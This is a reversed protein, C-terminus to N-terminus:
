AGREVAGEFSGTVDWDLVDIGNGRLERLRLRRTVRAYGPVIGMSEEHCTPDPSVVSVSRGCADLYQVLRKVGDDCLPSLVVVQTDTALRQRLEATASSMEFGDDPPMWDFAPSTTLVDHVRTRHEEGAGPSVWCTTSSLAAVGVPTSADLLSDVIRRGADVNWRVAPIRNRGNASLYVERRADILVVVRALRSELFDVTALEGTKAKRNWDVRSFPDGPRYERVSHFEVGAGKVTTQMQGPNVTARPQPEFPIAPMAPPRCELRTPTASAFTQREHLGTFDRAVLLAPEFTHTGQVAEVTYSFTARKGPRLATAIRPSGDTVELGAPVGDVLRLDPLIGDGTNRVTVSVTVDRGPDPSAETVTRTVVVDITPPSMTRASGAVAIGFLAIMLLGPQRVFIGLGGAVFSAVIVGRVRSSLSDRTTQDARDPWFERVTTPPMDEFPTTEASTKSSVRSGVLVSALEAVAHRSRRAFPPEATRLARLRERRSTSPVDDAFFETAHLNETWNGDALHAEIEPRTWGNAWSLVGAAIETLEARVAAHGAPEEKRRDAWRIADLQRAFASGPRPYQPRSEPEPFEDSIGPDIGGVDSVSKSEGLVYRTAFALALLGALILSATMAIDPIEVLGALAPTTVLLLGVISASFGFILAARRFASM